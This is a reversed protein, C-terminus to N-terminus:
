VVMTLDYRLQDNVKLDIDKITADRFGSAGAVIVYHGPPLALFTYAGQSDTTAERKQNTAVETITVRSGSLVAGSSDRVYGQISGTVDALLNTTAALVLVCISLFCYGRRM